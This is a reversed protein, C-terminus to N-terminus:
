FFKTTEEDRAGILEDLKTYIMTYIYIWQPILEPTAIIYRAIMQIMMQMTDYSILPTLTVYM